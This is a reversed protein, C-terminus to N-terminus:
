KIMRVIYPYQYEEGNNAKMGAIIPMVVGLIGVAVPLFIGIGFTIFVIPITLLLLVLINLQFNVEEKGHRDVFPMEDKKILWAILPGVLSGGPVVLGALAALHVYMGWTKEDQTPATSPANPELVPVVPPDSDNRPPPVTPPKSTIDENM